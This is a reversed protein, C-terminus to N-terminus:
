LLRVYEAVSTKRVNLYAAVQAIALPLYALISLLEAVSKRDELLSRNILSRGLLEIAEHEEM